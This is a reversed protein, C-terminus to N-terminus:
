KLAYILVEGKKFYPHYIFLVQPPTVHLGQEFHKRFVTPLETQM